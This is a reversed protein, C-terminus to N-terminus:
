KKILGLEILREHLFEGATIDEYLKPHEDDICNELCNLPMESVPHMFFPVSYRSTGWLEKPPNVVQHITSLLKNNTLRSLMDGVNIMLEDPKAIADVWEGEHNQVQLGKGHAGMLLTILNIDGHAAARVANKPETKIPPYHIPRLISNGNKIFNDFYFEDLNLHLALARLVYKATKELMKYTEKGVKNFEPLEKVIVNAPYEKELKDNDEVYQGFHWFEKLDGEKRGKAHEKGFSTYGRQGGIGEIQYGDKVDDPLDFFAKIEAYLSDVLEDSLFHGGLAVFGIEEFAKGIENIFKQKRKPDESLFDTLDVSPVLSM